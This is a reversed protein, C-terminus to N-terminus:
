AEAKEQKTKTKTIDVPELGHRLDDRDEAEAKSDASKQTAFCLGNSFIKMTGFNATIWDWDERKIITLGYAGAPLPKANAGILGTANGNFVIKRGDPMQFKIGFPHNLAVCVTDDGEARKPAAIKKKPEKRKFQPGIVKGEKETAEKAM